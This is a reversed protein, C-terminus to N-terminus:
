EGIQRVDHYVGNPQIRWCDRRGTNPNWGFGEMWYTNTASVIVWKFYQPNDESVNEDESLQCPMSVLRVVNTRGLYILSGELAVGYHTSVRDEGWFDEERDFSVMAVIRDSLANLVTGAIDYDGYQDQKVAHITSHGMHTAYAASLIIERYPYKWAPPLCKIYAHGFAPDERDATFDDKVSYIDGVFTNVKAVGVATEESKTIYGDADILAGVKYGPVSLFCCKQYTSAITFGYTWKGLQHEYAKAKVIGEMTADEAYFSGDSMVRYPANNANNKQAGAFIIPTNQNTTSQMGAVVNAKSADDTIYVARGTLFDIYGQESLVVKTAIFDTMNAVSWYTTYTPTLGISGQSNARRQYFRVTGDQGKYQVIDIYRATEGSRPSALSSDNYYATNSNYEGCMRIVCGQIGQPGQTSAGSTSVVIPVVVTRTYGEATATIRIENSQYGIMMDDFYPIITIIGNSTDVNIEDIGYDHESEAIINSFSSVSRDGINMTLHIKADPTGDAICSVKDMPWAIVNIDSTLSVPSTGDKGNAGDKGNYGDKGNIGDKGDKGDSGDKGNSGNKGESMIIGSWRVFNGNGDLEETISYLRGFNVNFVDHGEDESGDKCYGFYLVDADSSLIYEFEGSEEGSFIVLCEIPVSGDEYIEKSIVGLDYDKESSISYPIRIKSGAKGRITISMWSSSDDHGGCLSKFVIGDETETQSFGYNTAEKLEVNLNFDGSQPVESWGEPNEVTPVSPMSISRMYLTRPASARTFISQPESWDIAGNSLTTKWSQYVYKCKETDTNIPTTTMREIISDKSTIWELAIETPTKNEGLYYSVKSEVYAARTFQTVNGWMYANGFAIGYGSLNQMYDEWEGDVFRSAPISFDNLNGCIYVINTGDFDWSNMRDLMITYNTTSYVCMKRDRELDNDNSYSAFSMGEVPHHQHSWKDDIPRLEYMFYMSRSDPNDTNGTSDCIGIVKFYVTMFGAFEFSGSHSDSNNEANNSSDYADHFIGMCMDGAKISGIEGDELKLKVVGTTSDITAVEDIIGGGFTQWQIGTKVTTRRFRFEPVELFKRATISDFVANGQEDIKWGFGNAANYFRETGISGSKFVANGNLETTGNLETGLNVVIRGTNIEDTMVGNNIEVGGDFTKHGSITQESDKTVYNSLDASSNNESIVRAMAARASLKVTESAQFSIGATIDNAIKEWKTLRKNERLTISYKPLSEENESIEVKDIVINLVGLEADNMANIDRIIDMDKIRIFDGAKINDHLSVERNEIHADHQRQMYISDVEISYSTTIYDHESLYKVASDLLKQAAVKIYMDPLSIGLLVFKDGRKINFDNYPFYRGLRDDYERKCRIKWYNEEEEVPDLITFERGGCMGDIFSIKKDESSNKKFQTMLDFGLKKIRVVFFSDQEPITSAVGDGDLDDFLGDDEIPVAEAISDVRDEDAYDGNDMADPIDYGADRIQKFTTEKISPYIDDYGEVSGDFIVSKEYLGIKETNSSEIYPNNPNDSAIIDSHVTECIVFDEPLLSADTIGSAIKFIPKENSYNRIIEDEDGKKVGYIVWEDYIDDYEFHQGEGNIETNVVKISDELYLESYPLNTEFRLNKIYDDEFRVSNMEALKGADQENFGIQGCEIKAGFKFLEAIDNELYQIVFYRKGEKPYNEDIRYETEFKYRKGKSTIYFVQNDFPSVVSLAFSPKRGIVKKVNGVYTFMVNLPTYKNEIYDKLSRDPFGPLMLNLVNVNNPVSVNGPITTWKVPWDSKVYGGVAVLKHTHASDDDKPYDSYKTYTTVVDDITISTANEIFSNYESDSSFKSKDIDNLSINEPVMGTAIGGRTPADYQSYFKGGKYSINYKIGECQIESPIGYLINPNLPFHNLYRVEIYIKQLCSASTQVIKYIKKIYYGQVESKSDFQHNVNELLDGDNFVVNRGTVIEIFNYKKNVDNITWERGNITIKKNYQYFADVDVDERVNKGVSLTFSSTTMGVEICYEKFLDKDEIEIPTFYTYEGSPTVYFKHIEGNFSARIKRTTNAEFVEKYEDCDGAKSFASSMIFGKVRASYFENSGNFVKVSSSFPAYYEVFARQYYRSPLNTTNGYAYLRTYLGDESEEPIAELSVAGNNLGYMLETHGFYKEYSIGESGITITRGKVIFNVKFQSVIVDSLVSWVKQSSIDVLINKEGIAQYHYNSDYNDDFGASGDPRNLLYYCSKPKGTDPDVEDSLCLVRITWENGGKFERDLNAKIREAVDKVSLSYFQFSPMLTVLTNSTVHSEEGPRKYVVDRMEMRKLEYSAPWFKVSDYVFSDGRTGYRSTKKCSPRKSIYFREARYEIYDGIEFNIPISSNVSLTVYEDGMRDGSYTLKNAYGRITEGNKSYIPFTNKAM